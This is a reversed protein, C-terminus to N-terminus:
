FNISLQAKCFYPFKKIKNLDFTNYYDGIIIKAMEAELSLGKYVHIKSRLVYGYQPETKDKYAIKGGVSISNSKKSVYGVELLGLYIDNGLTDSLSNRFWTANLDTKFGSKFVFQHGYSFNEFNVLSSDGDIIYRSYLANFQANVKRLKPLWSVVATAIHNRDVTTNEDFQLKRFLPVYILRLNLKRTLRLNLSNNFSYLINKYNYLRLLNDEERRLAVSYKIWKNLVQEAKLEYRFNDSRLFGLGLSKFYPDIWRVTGTINMKAKVLALTTRSMVAYSRYNSFIESVSRKLQESSIDAAQLSSKGVILETSLSKSLDYKGDIELVLNSEKGHDSYDPSTFIYDVKGKGILAGVFLHSSEKSGTGGRIMLVKRGAELNNYNFYNYYNRTGQIVGDISRPNYLLNNVTTGYALALFKTNKEYEMNIGQLPINNILFTSASPNCLGIEFKKVNGLFQQAKSLYPNSYKDSHREYNSIEDIRSRIASIKQSISDYKTTNDSLEKSISDKRESKLKEKFANESSEAPFNYTAPVTVTTDAQLSDGMGTLSDPASGKVPPIYEPYKRMYKNFEIKKALDQQERKLDLIEKSLAQKKIGSASGIQEKYRNADYSIRFYNNIGIVNKVTTYYYNLELPVSFAMFSINGETRLGGTPFNDGYVYPLVGYDYGATISGHVKLSINSIKKNSKEKLISPNFANEHKLEPSIASTARKSYQKESNNFLLDKTSPGKSELSDSNLFPTTGSYVSSTDHPLAQGISQSVADGANCLFSTLIFREM